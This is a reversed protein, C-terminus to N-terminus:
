VLRLCFLVINWIHKKLFTSSKQREGSKQVHKRHNYMIEIIFSSGQDAFAENKGGKKEMYFM